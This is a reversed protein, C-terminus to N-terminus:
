GWNGASGGGADRQPSVIRSPKAAEAAQGTAM